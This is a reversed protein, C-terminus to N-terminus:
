PVVLISKPNAFGAVERLVELTALDVVYVVGTKANGVYALSGDASLALSEVGAELEVKGTSEWTSSDFVVLTGEDRAIAVVSSGDPTQAVGAVGEGVPVKLTRTGTKVDFVYLDFVREESEGGVGALLLSAGDNSVVIQRPGVVGDWPDLERSGEVDVRAIDYTGYNATYVTSGDPSLCIAVPRRGVGPGMRCCDPPDTRNRYGAESLVVRSIMSGLRADVTMVHSNMYGAVYLRARADDYCLGLPQEGVSVVTYNLANEVPYAYIESSGSASAYVRGAGYALSVPNEGATVRGLVTGQQPDVVAVTNGAYETVCLCGSPIPLSPAAEDASEDPTGSGEAQAPQGTAADPSANTGEQQAGTDTTDGATGACGAAALLLLSACSGALATFQRRSIPSM